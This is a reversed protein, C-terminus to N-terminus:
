LISLLSLIKLKTVDFLISHSYAFSSICYYLRPYRMEISGIKMKEGDHYATFDLPM